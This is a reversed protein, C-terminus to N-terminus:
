VQFNATKDSWLSLFVLARAVTHTADHNYGCKSTEAYDRVAIVFLKQASPGNDAGLVNELQEIVGEFDCAQPGAVHRGFHFDCALAAHLERIGGLGTTGNANLIAHAAAKGAAHLNTNDTKVEFVYRALSYPWVNGEEEDDSKIAAYVDAYKTTDREAAFCENLFVQPPRQLVLAVELKRGGEDEAFWDVISSAKM